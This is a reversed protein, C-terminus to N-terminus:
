RCRARDSPVQGDRQQRAALELVEAIGAIGDDRQRELVPLRQAERGVVQLGALGDHPVGALLLRLPELRPQDRPHPEQPALLLQPM